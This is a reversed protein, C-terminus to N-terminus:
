NLVGEFYALINERVIDAADQLFPTPKVGKTTHYNGDPTRYGWPVEVRGNGSKAYVGTGEHLYISYEVNTGVVAEVDLAGNMMAVQYTISTRLIGTDILNANTINNIAETRIANCVDTTVEKLNEGLNAIVRDLTILVESM